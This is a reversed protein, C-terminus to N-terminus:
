DDCPRLVRCEGRRDKGCYGGRSKRYGRKEHKAGEHNEFNYWALCSLLTDHKGTDPFYKKATDRINEAVNAPELVKVKDGFGLLWSVLYDMGTFGFEFRLGDPTETFSDPAYSEVLRYKESPDFVAVLKIDDTYM